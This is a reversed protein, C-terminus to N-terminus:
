GLIECHATITRKCNVEIRLSREGRKEPQLRLEVEEFVVVRNIARDAVVVLVAAFSLAIMM